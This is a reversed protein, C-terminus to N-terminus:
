SAAGPPYLDGRERAHGINPLLYRTIWLRLKHAEPEKRLDLYGLVGAESFGYHRQGPIKTLGTGSRAAMRECEAAAVQTALQQFVDDAVIWLRSADWYVRVQLGGYEYYHGEWDHTADREARQKLRALGYVIWRSAVWGIMPIALLGLAGGRWILLGCLALLFLHFGWNTNPDSTDKIV